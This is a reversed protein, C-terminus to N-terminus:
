YPDGISRRTSQNTNHSRDSIGDNPKIGSSEDSNGEDEEEDNDIKQGNHTVGPMMNHQEDEDEKGASSANRAKKTNLYRNMAWIDFCVLVYWLTISDTFAFIFLNVDWLILLFVFMRDSRLIYALFVTIFLFILHIVIPAVGNDGVCFPDNLCTAWTNTM